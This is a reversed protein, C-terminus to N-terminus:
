LCKIASHSANATDDEDNVVEPCAADVVVTALGSGFIRGIFVSGFADVGVIGVVGELVVAVGSEAGPSCSVASPKGESFFPHVM